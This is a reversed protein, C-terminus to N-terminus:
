PMASGTPAPLGDMRSEADVAWSPIREDRGTRRGVGPVDAADARQGHGETDAGGQCSSLAGSYRV